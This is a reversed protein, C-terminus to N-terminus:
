LNNIEEWSLDKSKFYEFWSNVTKKWGLPVMEFGKFECDDTAELLLRQHVHISYAGQLEPIQQGSLDFAAINGNEFLYANKVRQIRM